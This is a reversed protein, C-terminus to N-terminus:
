MTSFAFFRQPTGKTLVNIGNTLAGGEHGLYRGVAGGGLVMVNPRLIEVNQHSVFM